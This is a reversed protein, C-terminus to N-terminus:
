WCLETFVSVLCLHFTSTGQLCLVNYVRHSSQCRPRLLCRDCCHQASLGLPEKVNRCGLFESLCTNLVSWQNSQQNLWSVPSLAGHGLCLCEQCVPAGQLESGLARSCCGLSVHQVRTQRLNQRGCRLALRSMEESPGPRSTAM